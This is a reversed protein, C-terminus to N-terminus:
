KVLYLHPRKRPPPTQQEAVPTNEVSESVMKTEETDARPRAFVYRLNAICAISAVIAFLLAPTGDMIDMYFIAVAVVVLSGFAANINAQRPTCSTSTSEM